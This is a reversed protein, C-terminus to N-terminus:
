GHSALFADVIPQADPPLDQMQGQADYTYVVPAHPWDHMGIGRSVDHGADALQTELPVLDPPFVPPMM